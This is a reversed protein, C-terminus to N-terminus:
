YFKKFQNDEKKKLLRQSYPPPCKPVDSKASKDGIQEEVDIMMDHSKDKKEEDISVNEENVVDKDIVIRIPACTDIDEDFSAYATEEEISSASFTGSANM